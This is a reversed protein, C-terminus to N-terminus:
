RRDIQGIIQLEPVGERPLVLGLSYRRAPDPIALSFFGEPSVQGSAVLGQGDFLRVPADHWCTCGGLDATLQGVLQGDLRTLSIQLQHVLDNVECSSDEMWLNQECRLVNVPVPDECFVDQTSQLISRYVSAEARCVDCMELHAIFESSAHGLALAALQDDALHSHNTDM